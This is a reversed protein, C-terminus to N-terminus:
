KNIFMEEEIRIGIILVDDLQSYDGSWRDFTESIADHQENMPLNKNETILKRLRHRTFKRGKTGGFQDSYGDSFM